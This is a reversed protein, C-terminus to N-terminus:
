GALFEVEAVVYDAYVRDSTHPPASLDLREAWAQFNPQEASAATSRFHADLALRAFCAIREQDQMAAALAFAGEMVSEYVRKPDGAPILAEGLAFLLDCRKAKDEPDLVEQVGLTKELLRVAEGYDFVAMARQAALEGYEVAKQLDARD